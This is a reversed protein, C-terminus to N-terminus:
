GLALHHPRGLPETITSGPDLGLAYYITAAIDGPAVPNAAAVGPRPGGAESAQLLDPLALGCGGVTGVGLSGIKLLDRRPITQTVQSVSRRVAGPRVPRGSATMDHNATM